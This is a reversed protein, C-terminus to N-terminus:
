QPHCQQSVNGFHCIGPLPLKSHTDLTIITNVLYTGLLTLLLTLLKDTTSDTTGLVIRPEIALLKLELELIAFHQPQFQILM